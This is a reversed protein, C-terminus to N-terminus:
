DHNKIAMIAMVVTAMAMVVNSWFMLKQMKSSNNLQDRIASLLDQHTVAIKELLEQKKSGSSM